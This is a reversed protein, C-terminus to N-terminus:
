RNTGKQYIKIVELLEDSLKDEKELFLSSIEANFQENMFKTGMEITIAYLDLNKLLEQYEEPVKPLYQKFLQNSKKTKEDLEILRPHIDIQNTLAAVPPPVNLNQISRKLTGVPILANALNLQLEEMQSQLLQITNEVIETNLILTSNKVESAVNGPLDWKRDSNIKFYTQQKNLYKQLTSVPVGIESAITNVGLPGKERILQIILGRKEDLGM